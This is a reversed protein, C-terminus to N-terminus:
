FHGPLNATIGIPVFCTAGMYIGLPTDADTSAFANLIKIQNRRLLMSRFFFIHSFSRAWLSSFYPTEFRPWKYFFIEEGRPGCKDLLNWRGVLSGCGVLARSFWLSRKAFVHKRMKRMKRSQGLNSTFIVLHVNYAHFECCHRNQVNPNAFCQVSIFSM